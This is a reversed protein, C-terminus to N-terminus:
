PNKQMVPCTSGRKVWQCKVKVAKGGCADEKKIPKWERVDHMSSVFTIIQSSICWIAGLPLETGKEKHPPPAKLPSTLICERKLIM